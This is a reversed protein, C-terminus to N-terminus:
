ASRREVRELRRVLRAPSGAVVTYPEVDHLVVAARYPVPLRLLADLLEERREARELVVEATM